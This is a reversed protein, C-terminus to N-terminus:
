PRPRPEPKRPPLPADLERGEGLLIMREEDDVRVLVLRRTPDLVLTEVVQLRRREGTKAQLKALLGPAYRRAVFAALGILGLTVALALVARLFDLFNM